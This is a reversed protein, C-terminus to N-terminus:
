PMKGEYSIELFCFFNQLLDNWMLITLVFNIAKFCYFSSQTPSKLTNQSLLLDIYILYLKEVELLFKM